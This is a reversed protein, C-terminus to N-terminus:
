NYLELCEEYVSEDVKQNEYMKPKNINNSIHASSNGFIHGPNKINLEGQIEFDLVQNLISLPGKYLDEYIITKVKDDKSYTEFNKYSQIIKEYLNRQNLGLYKRPNRVVLIIFDLKDYHSKNNLNTIM